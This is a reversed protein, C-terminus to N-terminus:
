AAAWQSAFQNDGSQVIDGVSLMGELVGADNVVPLFKLKAQQMILLATLIDDSSQCTLSSTGVVDRVTLESARANRTGLAICIDRDTVIGALEGSDTLALLAGCNNDWMLATAAALNTETRCITIQQTMVDRVKM